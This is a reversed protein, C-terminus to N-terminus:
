SARRAREAVILALRSATTLLRRATIPALRALAPKM